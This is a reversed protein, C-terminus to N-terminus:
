CLTWLAFLKKATQVIKNSVILILFVTGHERQLIAKGAFAWTTGESKKRRCCGWATPATV